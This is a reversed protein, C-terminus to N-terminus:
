YSTRDACARSYGGNQMSTRDAESLGAATGIRTIQATAPVRM